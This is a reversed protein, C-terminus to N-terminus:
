FDSLHGNIKLHHVLTTAHEDIEAPYSFNMLSATEKSLWRFLDMSASLSKWSDEADFHPFLGQFAEWARPDAWKDMFRGMHWTDVGPHILRAHWEIMKTLFRKVDVDRQKVMVLDGRRLQKALYFATYWFANMLWLFDENKPLPPLPIKYDTSLTKVALNDKDLIVRAGRWNGSPVIGDRVMDQLLAYPNFVFDVNYGGAFTVLYEPDNGATRSPLAMWVEGIESLWGSEKLYQEPQRSYIMIDLDSWEDPLHDTRARSGVIVAARIDDQTNAWDTFQIALSQYPQDSIKM